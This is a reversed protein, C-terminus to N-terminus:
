LCNEPAPQPFRTCDWIVQEYESARNIKFSFAIAEVERDSMPFARAARAPDTWGMVQCFELAGCHQRAWTEFQEPKAGAPIVMASIGPQSFAIFEPEPGTPETAGGGCGALAAVAVLFIAGLIKKM